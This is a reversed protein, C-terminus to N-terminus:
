DSDQTKRVVLSLGLLLLVLLMYATARHYTVSTLSLVSAAM